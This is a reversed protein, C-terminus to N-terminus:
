RYGFHFYCFTASGLAKIGIFLDFSEFPVYHCVGLAKQKTSNNVRDINLIPIASGANQSGDAVAIWSQVMDKGIAPICTLFEFRSKGFDAFLFELNNAL